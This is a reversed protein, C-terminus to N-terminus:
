TDIVEMGDMDDEILLERIRAFAGRFSLMKRQRTSQREQIKRRREIGTLGSHADQNPSISFTSKIKAGMGQQPHVAVGVGAEKAKKKEKKKASFRARSGEGFRADKKEKREGDNRGNRVGM